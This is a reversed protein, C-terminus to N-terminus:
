AQFLTQIFSESFQDLAKYDTAKIYFSELADHQKGIEHLIKEITLCLSDIEHLLIKHSSLAGKGREPLMRDLNIKGTDHETELRTFLLKNKPLYISETHEDVPRISEYFSIKKQLLIKKLRTFFHESYVIRDKIGIITQANTEYSKLHVYGKVGFATAPQCVVQPTEEEKLHHKELLRLIITESRKQDFVEETSYRIANEIEHIAAMLAYARRYSLSISQSLAKIKETANQLLTQNWFATLDLISDVAGVYQPEIAHPPTGDLLVTSLSPIAVADLSNTDSSCYYRLVSLGKEEAAKALKKMLTSKGCGPGGKIIYKKYPAFLDSFCSSFGRYSNLAAFFANERPIIQPHDLFSM